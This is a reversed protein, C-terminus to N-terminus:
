RDATGLIAVWGEDQGWPRLELRPDALRYAEIVDTIQRELIGSLLIAGGARVRSALMPALLIIPNALINAVVLDFNRTRDLAFSEPTTYQAIARNRQANARATAVAQEDIDVGLVQTAGLLAAGISLIGSGCGYDLVSCGPELHQEMWSLCLRTTPHSGTGFAVGPDIRIICAEPDPPEHWSPV